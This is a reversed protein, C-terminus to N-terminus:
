HFLKIVLMSSLDLLKYGGISLCLRASFMVRCVKAMDGECVLDVLKFRKSLRIWVSMSCAWNGRCLVSEVAVLRAKSSKRLDEVIITCIRFVSRILIFIITSSQFGCFPWILRINIYIFSISLSYPNWHSSVTGRKNCIQKQKTILSIENLKEWLFILSVNNLRELIFGSILDKLLLSLM